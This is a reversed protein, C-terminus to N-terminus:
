EGSLKSTFGRDGRVSDDLEDVVEFQPQVVPVIIMQAVAENRNITISHDSATVLVMIEGRYTSEIVGASVRIGDKFALGSKEKIIGIYGEPIQIAIGTHLRATNGSSIVCGFYTYLDFSGESEFCENPIRADEHLKRIKIKM